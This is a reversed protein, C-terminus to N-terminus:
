FMAFLTFRWLRTGISSARSVEVESMCNMPEKRAHRKTGLAIRLKVIEEATSSSSSAACARLKMEVNEEKDCNACAAAIEHEETASDMVYRTQFLSPNASVIVFPLMVHACIINGIHGISADREGREGALIRCLVLDGTEDRRTHSEGL